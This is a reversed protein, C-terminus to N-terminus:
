GDTAVANGIALPRGAADYSMTVAPTGDSYAMGTVQNRMRECRFERVAFV